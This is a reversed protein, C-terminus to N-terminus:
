SSCASQGQHTRYFTPAVQNSNTKKFSLKQNIIAWVQYHNGMSQLLKIQNISDGVVCQETQELGSNELRIDM